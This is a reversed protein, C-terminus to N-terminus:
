MELKNKDIDAEDILLIRSFPPIDVRFNIPWLPGTYETENSGRLPEAAGGFYRKDEEASAVVRRQDM